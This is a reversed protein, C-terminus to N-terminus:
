KVLLAELKHLRAELEAIKADKAKLAKDQEISHLYLEEIKEVNTLQTEMLDIYGQKKIEAASKYGPLHGNAKVFNEVQSLTKFSYDAKISSTGTYYKQFVYDPFISAGNTGIFSTAKVKGAVELKEVPATVGIGMKGELYSTKNLGNIYFGYYNVIKSSAIQADKAFYDYYNTISGTFSNDELLNDSVFGYYNAINTSVSTAEAKRIIGTQVGIMESVSPTEQLMHLIKAGRVLSLNSSNNLQTSFHGGIVENSTTNGKIETHGSVGRMEEIVISSNGVSYFDGGFLRSVNTTQETYTNAAGRVGISNTTNGGMVDAYFRGGVMNNITGGNKVNVGGRVAEGFTVVANDETTSAFYGAASFKSNGAGGRVATSSIGRIFEIDASVQGGVLTHFAKGRVYYLPQTINDNVNISESSSQYLKKNGQANNVHNAEVFASSSNFTYGAIGLNDHDIEINTTPLSKSSQYKANLLYGRPNASFLPLGESNTLTTWDVGGQNIYTKGNDLIEFANSPTNEKARKAYIADSGNHLWEQGEQSVSDSLRVWKGESVTQNTAGNPNSFYYFGPTVDVVKGQTNADSGTKGIATNYVVVGDFGSLTVEDTVVKLDFKFQTLDTKPFGLLKGKSVDAQSQFNSADLFYNTKFLNKSIEGHSLVQAQAISCTGLALALITIKKM